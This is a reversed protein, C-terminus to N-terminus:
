ARGGVADVLRDLRSPAEDSCGELFIPRAGDEGVGHPGHWRGPPFRVSTPGFVLLFAM